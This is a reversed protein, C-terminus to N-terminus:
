RLLYTAVIVVKLISHYTGSDIGIGEQKIEDLLRSLVPASGYAADVNVLILAAYLRLNPKEQREALLTNIITRVLPEEGKIAFTRLKDYLEDTSTESFESKNDAM